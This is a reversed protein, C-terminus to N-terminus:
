SYIKKFSLTYVCIYINHGVRTQERRQASADAMEREEWDDLALLASVVLRRHVQCHAM